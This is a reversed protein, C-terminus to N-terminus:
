GRNETTKPETIRETTVMNAYSDPNILRTFQWFTCPKNAGYNNMM